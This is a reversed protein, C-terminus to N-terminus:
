RAKSGIQGTALMALLASDETHLPLHVRGRSRSSEYTAFVLETARLARESRLLAEDGTDLCGLLNDIGSATSTAWDGTELGELTRWQADEEKRYRVVPVVGSLEIIGHAGIVRLGEDGDADVGTRILGTVGSRFRLEALAADEALVGHVSRNTRCDVQGLLWEVPTDGAFFHFLDLLHTGRDLLDACRGELRRVEGVRGSDVLRRAARVAPHFRQALNFTLQIGKQGTAKRMAKAEGWTPALPAEGHIARVDASAADLVAAPQLRPGTCISVIDPREDELLDQYDHYVRASGGYAGAFREAIEASADAVAVLECEGTSLYGRAHAHAVNAGCGIVAVRFRDSMAPIEGGSLAPAARRWISALRLVFGPVWGTM